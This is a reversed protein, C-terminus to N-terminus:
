DEAHEEFWLRNTGYDLTIRGAGFLDAGIIGEIPAGAVASLPGLADAVAIPQGDRSLGGLVIRARGLRAGGASTGGAGGLQAPMAAEVGAAAATAPSILTTSAASDLAMLFPGRGNITARVLTVPRAPALTFGIARAAPGPAAALDVRRRGYDIAITRGAVFHHGLIADIPSGVQRAVADVAPSVGVAVDDLAVPGLTFRALRAPRIAVAGDGVAAAARRAPADEIVAAARAALAPSVIMAFPAANGTDLLVRAPVTGARAEMVVFPIRDPMEFPVSDLM